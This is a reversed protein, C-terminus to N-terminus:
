MTSLVSVQNAHPAAVVIIPGKRPVKWAGRPHIERFFLDVLISFLWLVTDYVWPVILSRERKNAMRGREVKGVFVM